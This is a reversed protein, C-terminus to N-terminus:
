AKLGIGEFAPKRNLLQQAFHGALRLLVGDVVRHQAAQLLGNVTGFFFAMVGQGAVAVAVERARNPAVRVEDDVPLQPPKQAAPLARHRMIGRAEVDEGRVAAILAM